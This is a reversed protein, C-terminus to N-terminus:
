ARASKRAAAERGGVRGNTVVGLLVRHLSRRDPSGAYYDGGEGGARRIHCPANWRVRGWIGPAGRRTRDRHGRTNNLNPIERDIAEAEARNLSVVGYGDLHPDVAFHLLDRKALPLVNM